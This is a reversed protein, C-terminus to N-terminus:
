LSREKPKSNHTCVDYPFDRLYLIDASQCLLWVPWIEEVQSAALEGCSSSDASESTQEGGKFLNLTIFETM